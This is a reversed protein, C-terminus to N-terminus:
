GPWILAHGNWEFVIHMISHMYAYTENSCVCQAYKQPSSRSEGGTRKDDHMLAPGVQIRICCCLVPTLMMYQYLLISLISISQFSIGDVNTQIAHAKAVGPCVYLAAYVLTLFSPVTCHWTAGMRLVSYRHLTAYLPPLLIPPFLRIHSLLPLAIPRTSGLPVTTSSVLSAPAVCSKFGPRDGRDGTEDMLAGYVPLWSPLITFILDTSRILFLNNPTLTITVLIESIICWVKIWTSGQM